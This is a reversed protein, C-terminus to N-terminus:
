LGLITNVLIAIILVLSIITLYKPARIKAQIAIPTTPNRVLEHTRFLLWITAVFAPILYIFGLEAVFGILLNVSASISFLVLIVWAAKKSSLIISITTVDSKADTDVDQIESIMTRGMEWTTGSFALLWVFNPILQGSVSASGFLIIFLVALVTCIFSVPIGRKRLYNYVFPLPVGLLALFICLPNLLFTLLVAIVGFALGVTLAQRASILGKPIPRQATRPNEKDVNRDAYDNLTHASAIALGTAVLGILFPPIPPLTNVSLFASAIFFFLTTILVYPRTLTIIGKFKSLIIGM